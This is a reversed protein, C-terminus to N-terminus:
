KVTHNHLINRRRDSDVRRGRRLDPQQLVVVDAWAAVDFSVAKQGNIPNAAGVCIGATRAFGMGPVLWFASALVGITV